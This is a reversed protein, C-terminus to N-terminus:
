SPCALSASIASPGVATPGVVLLALAAIGAFRNYRRMFEGEPQHLRNEISSHNDRSIIM